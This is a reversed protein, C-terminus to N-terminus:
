TLTLYNWIYQKLYKLNLIGLRVIKFWNWSGLYKELVRLENRRMIHIQNSFNSGHIIREGLVKDIYHFSALSEAMRLWLDYDEMFLLDEDFGGVEKILKRKFCVSSGCLDNRWFLRSYMDKYNKARLTRQIIGSRRVHLPHYIVDTDIKSAEELKTPYWIDDQDLLAIYEGSAPIIGLNRASGLGGNKQKILFVGYEEVIKAGNDTSGDDAVIIEYDKFTQAKVSDLAKAIFKEGNYLPIIVSFKINGM